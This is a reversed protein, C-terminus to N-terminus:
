PRERNMWMKDGTRVIKRGNVYVSPSQDISRSIKVHTNSVVGLGAGPEDGRINDVYSEEHLYAPKGEFFVNPSCQQSQDMTHTIPYPIPIGKKDPTLCVDPLTSVLVYQADKGTAKEQAM